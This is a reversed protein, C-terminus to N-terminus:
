HSKQVSAEQKTKNKCLKQTFTYGPTIKKKFFFSKLNIKIVMLVAFILIKHHTSINKYYVFIKDVGTIANSFSNNM